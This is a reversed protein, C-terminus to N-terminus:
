MEGVLCWDGDDDMCDWVFGVAYFDMEGGEEEIEVAGPGIVDTSKADSCEMVPGDVFADADEVVGEEGYEVEDDVEDWYKGSLHSLVGSASTGTYNLGVGKDVVRWTILRHNTAVDCSKIKRSGKAKHSSKCAPHTHCGMCRPRECKGTFKSHNSPKSSVKTYLGATPRSDFENVVKRGPKSNWPPPLIMQTRVMGHQRGERKM